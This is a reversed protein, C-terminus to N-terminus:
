TSCGAQSRRSTSTSPSPRLSRSLSTTKKCAESICISQRRMRAKTEEPTACTAV